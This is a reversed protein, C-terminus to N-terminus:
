WSNRTNNRDDEYYEEDSIQGRGYVVEDSPSAYPDGAYPEGVYGGGYMGADAPDGYPDESAPRVDGFMGVDAPDGYPDESAPRVDGYMGVDAPDGYPDQSAPYVQEDDQNNNTGLAAEALKRLFGDVM